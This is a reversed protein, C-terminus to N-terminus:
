GESRDEFRASKAIRREIDVGRGGRPLEELLVREVILRPSCGTPSSARLSRLSAYMRALPTDDSVGVAGYVQIAQDVVTTATQMVLVKIASMDPAAAKDGEVDM